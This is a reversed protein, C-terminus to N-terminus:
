KKNLDLRHFYHKKKNRKKCFLQKIYFLNFHSKLYFSDIYIILQMGKKKSKVKWLYVDGLCIIM